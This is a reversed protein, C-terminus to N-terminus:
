NVLAVSARAAILCFHSFDQSFKTIRTVATRNLNRQAEIAAQSAYLHESAINIKRELSDGGCSIMCPDYVFNLVM